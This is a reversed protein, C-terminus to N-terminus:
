IIFLFSDEIFLLKNVLSRAKMKGEIIRAPHGIPM